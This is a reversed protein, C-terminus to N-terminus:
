TFRGPGLRLQPGLPVCWSREASTAFNLEAGHSADQALSLMCYKRWPGAAAAARLARACGAGCATSARMADLRWIVTEVQRLRAGRSANRALRICHPTCGAAM